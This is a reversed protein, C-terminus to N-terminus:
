RTRAHRRLVGVGAMALMAMLAALGLPGIAPVPIEDADLRDELVLENMDQTGDTGTFAHQPPSGHDGLWSAVSTGAIHLHGLSDVDIDQGLDDLPSGYFTHWRYAGATTLKLVMMDSGGATFAHVPNTAGYSWTALSRGVIYIDLANRGVVLDLGYDDATASGFFSHWQYTGASDLALVAIDSQGSGSHAHKPAANGPAPGTWTDKSSGTVFVAGNKVAIGNGGDGLASGYFTHWQYAGDPGNLKLVVIDNDGSHAHLPGIAGVDWTAESNGTVYVASGEVAISAPEVDAGDAGFFTHWQYNGNTDLKVVAIDPGGAYDNKPPANGPAPGNWTDDSKMAMYVNGGADVAIAHGEDYTGAYGAGFFTHWRYAGASDLKLVYAESTGSGYAHRPNEGAPGSWERWSFGTIYINNAGDVAVAMAYDTSSSGFFTHWVYAGNSDQKLVFLDAFAGPSSHAHLPAQGAPGLWTDRSRGVIYSANASDVVVGYARDSDASGYFTHRLYNAGGSAVPFAVAALPAMVLVIACGILFAGRRMARMVRMVRM